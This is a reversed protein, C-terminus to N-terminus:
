LKLRLLGGLFVGVPMMAMLLLQYWVPQMGRQQLASLGGLLLVVVALVLIHMIPRGSAIWVQAIWATVFGGAMAAVLSYVLNVVVYSANPNGTSGVWDPARKVLVATIVGVTVAM